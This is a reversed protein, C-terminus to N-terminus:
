QPLRPLQKCQDSIKRSIARDFVVEVIIDRKTTVGDASSSADNIGTIVLGGNDISVDFDSYTPMELRSSFDESTEGDVTTKTKIVIRMDM